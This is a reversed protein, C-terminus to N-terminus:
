DKIAQNWEKSGRVLQKMESAKSSLKGKYASCRALGLPDIWTLPTPVYAYLNM